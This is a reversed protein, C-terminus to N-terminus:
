LGIFVEAGRSQTEPGREECSWCEEEQFRGERRAGIDLGIKHRAMDVWAPVRWSSPPLLLLLAKEVILM